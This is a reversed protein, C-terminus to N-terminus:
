AASLSRALPLDCVIPENPSDSLGQEGTVWEIIPMFQRREAVSVGANMEFIGSGSEAAKLYVDSDILRALLKLGLMDLMHQLPAYAPMSRRVKNAVVAMKIDGTKMKHLAVLERVFNGTAHLDISSPIVPILVSGSRDLMEHLLVGAAGAPADIILHRTEPPVYMDFSRLRGFSAPAANAAHIRAADGPRSRLWNLSSGQPDYDMLTVPIHAAAFYSALNIALTTKGAGGKPNIVLTTKM